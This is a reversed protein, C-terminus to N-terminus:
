KKQSGFEQQAGYGEIIKKGEDEAVLVYVYYAGPSESGLFKDSHLEFELEGKSKNALKSSPTAYKANGGRVVRGIMEVPTGKETQVLYHM